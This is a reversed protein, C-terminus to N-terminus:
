KSQGASSYLQKKAIYAQVAEPILESLNYHNKLKYKIESSSIDILNMKLTYILGHRSNKLDELNFTSYKKIFQNIEPNIDKKLISGPRKIIILHAFKILDKWKHWTNITSLADSGLIFFYTNNNKKYFFKLTDITYSKDKDNNGKTIEFDSVEFKNNACAINVMAPRHISNSMKKNFVSVGTPIFIIKDLNIQKISNEAISIHANHIPDFAGGFLGIFQNSVM